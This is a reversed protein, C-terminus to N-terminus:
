ITAGISSIQDVHLPLFEGCWAHVSVAPFRWHHAEKPSGEGVFHPPFRHCAGNLADAAKFYRCQSCSAEFAASM